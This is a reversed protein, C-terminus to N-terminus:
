EGGALSGFAEQAPTGSLAEWLEEAFDDGGFLVAKKFGSPKETEKPESPKESAEAAREEADFYDEASTESVVMGAPLLSSLDDDDDKPAEKAQETGPFAIVNGDSAPKTEEAPEAAEDLVNATSGAAPVPQEKPETGGLEVPLVSIDEEDFPCDEDEPVFGDYSPAEQTYGELSPYDDGNGSTANSSIADNGDSADLWEAPAEARAATEAEAAPAPTVAKQAVIEALRGELASVKQSLGSIESNVSVASRIALELSVDQLTKDVGRLVEWLSKAFGELLKINAEILLKHLREKYRATNLIMKEVREGGLDASELDNIARLLQRIIQTVSRGSLLASSLADLAKRTDHDNVGTLIDFVVDEGALGIREAVGEVTVGNLDFVSELLSLSNRMSGDSNIAILALADEEYPQQYKECVGKLYDAITDAPVNKFRHIQCRSKIAPLVKDEETTCLIFIVGKPPEELTKLLANSAATSLMHCEDIIFVRVKGPSVYNAQDIIGRVDAVSNNSAADLGIVDPSLGEIIARCDPCNCCPEGSDASATCNLAAGVIRAATTKGTGPPGVFLLNNEDKKRAKQQLVKIIHEQGVMDSFRRPRLVRYLSEM